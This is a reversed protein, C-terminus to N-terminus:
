TKKIWGDKYEYIYGHSLLFEIALVAEAESGTKSTVVELLREYSIGGIYKCIFGYTDFVIKKFNALDEGLKEYEWSYM